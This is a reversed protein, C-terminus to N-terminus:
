LWPRKLKDTVTTVERHNFCGVQKDTYSEIYCDGQKRWALMIIGEFKLTAGDWTVFIDGRSSCWVRKMCM